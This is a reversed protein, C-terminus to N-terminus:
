GDMEDEQETSLPPPPLIEIVVKVLEEIGEGMREDCQEIIQGSFPLQEIM